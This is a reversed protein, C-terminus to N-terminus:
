QDMAGTGPVPNGEKGEKAEPHEAFLRDRIELVRPWVHVLRRAAEENEFVAPDLFVHAPHELRAAIATRWLLWRDRWSLGHAAALERFVSDTGTGGLVSDRASLWRSFGVLVGIAIALACLGLWSRWSIPQPYLRENLREWAARNALIFWWVTM